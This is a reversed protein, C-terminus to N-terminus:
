ATICRWTRGYRRASWSRTRQGCSRRRAASSRRSRGSHVKVLMGAASGAMAVALEQEGACYGGVSADVSSHTGTGTLTVRAQPFGSPQGRAAVPGGFAARNAPTDPVDLLFGDVAAVRMGRWFAGALGAPAALRGAPPVGGRDGRCGAAAPHPAGFSGSLGDM